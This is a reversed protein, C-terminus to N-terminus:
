KARAYHPLGSWGCRCPGFGTPPTSQFWGRFGRNGSPTRPTHRVHNHCLVVGAPIATPVTGTEVPQYGEPTDTTSNM